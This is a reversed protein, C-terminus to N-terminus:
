LRSYFKRIKEVILGRRQELFVEYDGSELEFISSPICNMKLNEQLDEWNNIEGIKMQDGNVQAKIAGMYEKPSKAKIALNIVQETYAYNAIQNYQGRNNFGNSQLYKKPFVHHVDGREELLQQVTISKSLFANDKDYIQSMIYLNFYPSSSVSTNLNAPMINDWYAGSLEGAEMNKVYEMPNDHADFRKIDYDFMSEASGSYRETLISAVLWKRVIQNILSDHVNKERLLLFLTYAFNLANQSRVISPNIVGASKLIMIFRKFNTENVFKLVGDHLSEFSDEIIEEKYERTEFDRGSLLSVLNALRGRLFKFTFAVRLLDSYSPEYINTNYDKVWKIKKFDDSQIYDEDNNVINEYITPSKIMHCFYDITKRILPGNYTDNVSIKSMAFDAQSLNVGASNIRIFIETVTEIDLTYALEIVGISSYRISTLKQLIENLENNTMEPNQSCYNHIFGFTDFGQKFIESIDPIWKKDKLIAPNQVEFLEEIPNFAIIIRRKSYEKTVIEKGAIAAMLATVRQQGDILIKKGQSISGDKLRADPNQWTIIYGVPYDNYLSDLLDRVKSPKWVFPRQIEPIAVIGQDIWSILANVNTNNVQYNSM